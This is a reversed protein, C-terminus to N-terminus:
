GTPYEDPEVPVKTNVAGGQFIAKDGHSWLEAPVKEKPAAALAALFKAHPM